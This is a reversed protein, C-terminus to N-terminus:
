ESGSNYAITPDPAGYDAVDWDKGADSYYQVLFTTSQLVTTIKGLSPKRRTPNHITLSLYSNGQSSYRECPDSEPDFGSRSLRYYYPSQLCRASPSLRRFLPERPLAHMVTANPSLQVTGQMHYMDCVGADYWPVRRDRGLIIITFLKVFLLFAVDCSACPLM